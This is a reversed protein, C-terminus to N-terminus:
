DSYFWRESGIETKEIKKGREVYCEQAVHFNLFLWDFPSDYSLNPCDLIVDFDYHRLANGTSSAQTVCM